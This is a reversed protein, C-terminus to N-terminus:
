DGLPDLIFYTVKIMQRRFGLSRLSPENVDGPLKLGVEYRLKFISKVVCFGSSVKMEFRLTKFEWFRLHNKIGGLRETNPRLGWLCHVPQPGAVERRLLTGAVGHQRLEVLQEKPHWAGASWKSFSGQWLVIRDEAVPFSEVVHSLCALCIFFHHLDSSWPKLSELWIWDHRYIREHRGPM